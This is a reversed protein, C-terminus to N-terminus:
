YNEKLYKTKYTSYLNLFSLIFSHNDVQYRVARPCYNLIKSSQLNWIVEPNTKEEANEKKREEKLDVNGKLCTVCSAKSWYGFRSFSKM